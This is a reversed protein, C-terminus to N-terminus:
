KSTMLICMVICELRIKGATQDGSGERSALSRAFM